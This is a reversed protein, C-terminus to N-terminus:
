STIFKKMVYAKNAAYYAEKSPYIKENWYNREICNEVYMYQVFNDFRKSMITEEKM